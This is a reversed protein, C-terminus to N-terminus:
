TKFKAINSQLKEAIASLEQISHSVQTASQSNQEAIAAVDVITQSVQASTTSQNQTAQTISSVLKRIEGSTNHVQSLSQRTQQVLETGSAIQAAGQHMAQVVETTELQIRSVLTEIEATAEASQTALSRVEEAIVAFGKGQEGARAAEISAKLALLHTQAAFRGILNVAQSISQSSEGLKEAKTATQTITHQVAKIEAVTRNMTQDERAITTTAQHVFAEAQHALHAILAISAELDQVQGLMRMISSAQTVTDQALSQVAADNASTNLQVEMAAEKTQKVLSQLSAITSNYADAITGIEDETVRARLTLDGHSLEDVEQLLSLARAQMAERALKERIAGLKQQEVLELRTVSFAIQNAVQTLFKVEENMWPLLSTPQHVMLLGHLQNEIIVTAILSSKAGLSALYERKTPTLNSQTLDNIVEIQSLSSQVQYEAFLEANLHSNKVASYGQTACEAVAIASQSDFQYYVVRGAKFAAYSGQVVAELIELCNQASASRLTIDKISESQQILISQVEVFDALQVAMQNIDQAFQAIEDTGAIKLRTTFNGRSIEQVANAALLIPRLLRNAVVYAIAGIVVAGLVSGLAFVLGLKRQPAYIIATDTALIGQWELDPLGAVTQAPAYTLLQSSNTKKNLVTSSALGASTLLKNLEETDEFINQPTIAQYNDPQRVASSDSSTSPTIYEGTSSLFIEGQNNLLYYQSGQTTYNQLLKTLVAVPIRARVFGITKGTLQEQIPSTGYISFVGSSAFLQPQSIVAMKAKLVDQVYSRDLHNELTEGQTQAILKGQLDFIAISDYFGYAAQIKELAATQEQKTAQRSLRPNTFIDLNAMVQIDSLRDGMFVNVQNQLDGVLTKKLNSVEQNVSKAAFYYAVSGIALTPITGIAIALAMTKWRINHRNWWSTPILIPVPERDRKLAFNTM